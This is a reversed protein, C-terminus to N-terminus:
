MTYNNLDSAGSDCNKDKSDTKNISEKKLMLLMMETSVNLLETRLIFMVLRMWISGNSNGRNQFISVWQVKDM